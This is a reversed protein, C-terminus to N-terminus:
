YVGRKRLWLNTRCYMPYFLKPVYKKHRPQAESSSPVPLRVTEVRFMEALRHVFAEFQEQSPHSFRPSYCVSIQEPVCGFEMNLFAEVRSDITNIPYDRCAFFDWDIDLFEGVELGAWEAFQMVDYRMPVGQRGKLSLLWRLPQATLDTEYKVTGVDYQRGGPVHHIWRVSQVRREMIAHTLFNGEDVRILIDGIQHVRQARRDVLLGRMDCHFDMHVIRLGMANQSRWLQLLQDHREIIHLVSMTQHVANKVNTNGLCGNM